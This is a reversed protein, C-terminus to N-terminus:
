IFLMLDRIGWELRSKISQYNSTENRGRRERAQDLLRMSYVIGSSRVQRKNGASVVSIGLGIARTVIRVVWSGISLEVDYKKRKRRERAQDLSQMLYVTVPLRVNSNRWKWCRRNLLAIRIIQSDRHHCGRECEWM